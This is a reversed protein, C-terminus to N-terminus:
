WTMLKLGEALNKIVFTKESVGSKSLFTHSIAVNMKQRVFLDLFM